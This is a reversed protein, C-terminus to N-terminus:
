LLVCFTSCSERWLHSRRPVRIWGGPEISLPVSQLAYGAEAHGKVARYRAPDPFLASSAAVAARELAGVAPKNTHHDPKFRVHTQRHWVDDWATSVGSCERKVNIELHLGHQPPSPLRLGRRHRAGHRGLQCRLSMSLASPDPHQLYAISISPISM